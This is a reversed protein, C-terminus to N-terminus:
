KVRKVQEKIPNVISKLKHPGKVQEESKAIRKDSEYKTARTRFKDNQTENEHNRNQQQEQELALKQTKHVQNEGNHAKATKTVLM